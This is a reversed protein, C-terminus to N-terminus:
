LRSPFIQLEPVTARPPLGAIFLVAAAIDTPALALALTEAPTPQPRKTLIETDCLGPFILSARIGHPKEELRTGHALGSLGHKSAQYAVGSVDPMQVAATSLYIILGNKAARMTPLVAQTCHFAGTLNTALMMDWDQQSLM